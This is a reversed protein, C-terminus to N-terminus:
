KERAQITVQQADEVFIVRGGAEDSSRRRLENLTQEIEPPIHTCYIRMTDHLGAFDFLQDMSVHASDLVLAEVGHAMEVIDDLGGIDGSLLVSRQDATVLFSWAQAQLGRAAAIDRLRDLHRNPFPRVALGNITQYRDYPLVRWHFSWRDSFMYMGEFWQEFWLERGPPVLIDIATRRDMLHMGQLLMPLGSIHDAHTHSIWIHSIASADIGSALLAASAGEGADVLQTVGGARLLLSSHKRNTVPIGAATGTFLITM